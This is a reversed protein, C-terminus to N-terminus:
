FLFFPSCVFSDQLFNECNEDLEFVHIKLIDHLLSLRKNLRLVM